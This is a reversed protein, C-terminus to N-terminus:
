DGFVADDSSLESLLDYNDLIGSLYRGAEAIAPANRDSARLTFELPQERRLFGDIGHETVEAIRALMLSSVTREGGEMRSVTTQDLKLRNALQEQTLGASERARAIRGGLERADM